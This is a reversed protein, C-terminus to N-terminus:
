LLDKFIYKNAFITIYFLINTPLKIGLDHIEKESKIQYISLLKCIFKIHEIRMKKANKNYLHLYEYLEINKNNQCSFTIQNESGTIVSVLPENCSIFKPNESLINIYFDIDVVWKLTKDFKKNVRKRYITASPSGIINNSFLFLPDRILKNLKNIVPYYINKLKTDPYCNASACFAFDSDPNDDLMKVFKALSNKETFWDDHFLFKIYEGRAYELCTNFNEPSGKREINKFYKIRSDNFNKIIDSVSNDPSDDTIIIEYNDFSQEFASKLAREIYEPQKYAPICISVKPVKLRDRIEQNNEALTWTSYDYAVTSKYFKDEESLNDPNQYWPLHRAIYPSGTRVADYWKEDRYHINPRYLAFTTDIHAEYLDFDYNPNDIKKNWYQGEWECLSEKLPNFDPIDNIELSFGVKTIRPNENLIKMFQEIVDTPCEDFPIVDPDSLIFNQTKIIHDFLKCRWLVLHGINEDFKHVKYPLKDLYDVLPPYTSNNDLIYINKLDNKELWDILKQLCELRNRTVIFVPINKIDNDNM